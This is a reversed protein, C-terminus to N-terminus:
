SARPAHAPLPRAWYALDNETVRGRRRGLMGRIAGPVIRSLPSALSARATLGPGVLLCLAWLYAARLEPRRELSDPGYRAWTLVRVGTGAGPGAGFVGELIALGAALDRGVGLRGALHALEAEDIVRDGDGAVVGFAACAGFLQGDIRRGLRAALCLLIETRSLTHVNLRVADGRGRRPRVRQGVSRAAARRNSEAGNARGLAARLDSRVEVEVTLEPPDGALVPDSSAAVCRKSARGGRAWPGYGRRALAELLCGRDEELVFLELDAFPPVAPDPFQRPPPGGAFVALRGGLRVFEEVLDDLEAELLM